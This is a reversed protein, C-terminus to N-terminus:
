RAHVVEVSLSIANLELDRFRMVIVSFVFEPKSVEIRTVQLRYASSNFDHKVINKAEDFM